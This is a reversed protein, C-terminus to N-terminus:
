DLVSAHRRHAGGLDGVGAVCRDRCANRGRRGSLGFCLDIVWRRGVSRVAAEHLPDAAAIRFLQRRERGSKGAPGLDGCEDFSQAVLPAVQGTGHADRTLQRELPQGDEIDFGARWEGVHRPRHGLKGLRRELEREGLREGLLVRTEACGQVRGTPADVEPDDAHALEARALQVHRGVDVQDVDVLFVARGVARMRGAGVLIERLEGATEVRQDALDGFVTEYEADIQRQSRVAVGTRRDHAQGHELFIQLGVAAFPLAEGPQFAADDRRQRAHLVPAGQGQAREDRGEDIAAIEVVTDEFAQTLQVGLHAVFRLATGGAPRLAGVVDLERAAADTLDLEDDLQQQDHAAALEGLNRM